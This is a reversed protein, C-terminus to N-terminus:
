RLHMTTFVSSLEKKEQDDSLIYNFFTIFWFFEIFNSHSLVRLSSWSSFNCFFM